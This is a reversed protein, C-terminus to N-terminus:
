IKTLMDDVHTILNELLSQKIKTGLVWRNGDFGVFACDLLTNHSATTNTQYFRPDYVSEDYAGEDFIIRYKPNLVVWANTSKENHSKFVSEKVLVPDNTNLSLAENLMVIKGFEEIAFEVIVYAHDLRGERVMFKADKLFDSVNQKCLDIGNQMLGRPILVQKAIAM